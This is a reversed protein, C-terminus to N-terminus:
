RTTPQTAPDSGKLEAEIADMDPSTVGHHRLDAFDKLVQASFAAFYLTPDDKFFYITKAKDVDGLLLDAHALNLKLALLRNQPVDGLKDLARLATDHALQPQHNLLQSWTLAIAANLYGTQSVDDQLFLLQENAGLAIRAVDATAAWDEQKASPAVWDSMSSALETLIDFNTGPDNIIADAVDVADQLVQKKGPDSNQLSAYLGLNASVLLLKIRDSEFPHAEKGIQIAARYRSAASPDGDDSVHPDSGGDGSRVAAACGAKMRSVWDAEQASQLCLQLYPQPAEHDRMAASIAVAAAPWHECEMECHGLLLPSPAAGMSRANQLDAEAEQSQGNYFECEGKSALANANHPNSELEGQVAAIQDKWNRQHAPLSFDWMAVTGDSSSTLVQFEKDSVVANWLATGAMGDFSRIQKGTLADWIKLSGDRHASVVMSQDASFGAAYVDSNSKMTAQETGRQLDWEIVDRDDSGSLGMEGDPSFAVCEVMSSHLRPFQRLPQGTAVDWLKIMDDKGGTLISLGDPSFHASLVGGDNATLMHSIILNQINWIWLTGDYSAALATHGDPSFEVQCIGGAHGDFTRLLKGDALDWVKVQSDDDGSLGLSGDPSFAVSRIRSDHGPFSRLERGTAVDFLRLTTDLGGTLVMRGDRSLAIGEVAKGSTSAPFKRLARGQLTIPWLRVTQDKGGSLVDGSPLFAVASVQQSHGSLTSILNGTEVDWLKVTSDASASAITLGDRSCSVANVADTHGKLTMVIKLTNANWIDIASDRGGTIVRAGDPLFACSYIAGVSVDATRILKGTKLDWSTLTGDASASLAKAGDPSVAITVVPGSSVSITLVERGTQIDWLKLTSDLSGSLISKGGPLFAVSTVGLTNNRFTQIPASQIDGLRWLMITKDDSASAVLKGDPSFAVCNVPGTHGRFTRTEKGTSINWIKITQDSSGSAALKGDPSVAVSNVANTHGFFVRAGEHRHALSWYGFDAPWSPLNLDDFVLLSQDYCSQADDENGQLLMADGEFTLSRAMGIRATVLSREASSRLALAEAASKEALARQQLANSSAKEAKNSQRLAWFALPLCILAGIALLGGAVAVALRRRAGKLKQREIRERQAAAALKQEYVRRERSQRIPETLIDHSLELRQVGLRDEIHLLRSFLLADITEQTMGAKLADDLAVSNRFGSDTLLRDEVFMRVSAPLGSLSLEYFDSLIGGGTEDLLEQTIKPLDRDLRKINLQRCFVSLLAPEIQMEELREDHPDAQAAGGRRQRAVFQVIKRAVQEDVLTPGGRLIVDLAQQGNMPALHMRNQISRILSRLGELEALYDERLSLVVKCAAAGFSFQAADVEGKDMKEQLSAPPRNEILDALEELFARGRGRVRSSIWGLTFIEEFQDFILTITLPRNRPSWFAIDRRHFYAWLTEGAEPPPADIAKAAILRRIEERVQEALPPADPRHTLRLMVPILDAQRLRSSLGANLLSTKGLGSRGFLITLTERKIRSFLEEAEKDRGFFFDRAAETFSALGPWPEAPSVLPEDSGAPSQPSQPNPTATM